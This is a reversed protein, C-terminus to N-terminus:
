SPTLTPHPHPLLLSYPAPLTTITTEPALAADRLDRLSTTDGVDIACLLSPRLFSLVRSGILQQHHPSRRPHHVVAHRRRCLRNTHVPRGAVGCGITVDLARVRIQLRLLVTTHEGGGFRDVYAAAAHRCM